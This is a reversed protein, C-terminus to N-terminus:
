TKDRLRRKRNWWEGIMLVMFGLVMGGPVLIFSLWMLIKSAISKM